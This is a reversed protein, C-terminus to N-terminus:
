TPSTRGVREGTRAEVVLSDQIMCRRGGVLLHHSAPLQDLPLETAHEEQKFTREGASCGREEGAGGREGTFTLTIAVLTQEGWDRTTSPQDTARKQMSATVMGM